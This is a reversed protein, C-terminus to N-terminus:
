HKPSDARATHDPEDAVEDHHHARPSRGRLSEDIRNLADIQLQRAEDEKGTGSVAAALTSTAALELYLYEADLDKERMKTVVGRMYAEPAAYSRGMRDGTNSANIRAEALMQEGHKIKKDLEAAVGPRRRVM